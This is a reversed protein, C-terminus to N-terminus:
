AFAPALRAHLRRLPRPSWWNASGLLRMLSPVLLARVIFADILVAAAAGVGIEKLFVLDSTVFAGLAVALLIAAASVVAGTRQLGVAIAETDPLGRERAEKIRTLLFVGYDTSLGVAIAVLVLYNAQEIGAEGGADQFVLVVIGTAAAATLLSMLLTKFPLVVSGTMLWLVTVTLAVLLALALPLAHSIGSHQDHLNAAAGGVAVHVPAPAARVRDVAAQASTSSPLGTADVDLQWTDHGLYRPPSVGRVGDIRRLHGAYRRLTPAAGAPATAVVAMPTAEASPFDRAMVDAVDRASKGQPLIGADVGIWNLGLVPAALALLALTTTAAVLGPRRMVGRALRYWRGTREPAPRVKGLRAGLLVFLPPLVLLASAAAVLAVLAGGIGMSILFRQPFVSLCAMAAAVTVASFMITRGATQLTAALAAGPAAGRGLEERFRSVCLLSYDIALGLGLGIVLNLAFPSLSIVTDVARLLAFTGLVSLGGVAIPLFAAVGRFIALSLLALLPFAVLEAIALDSTAQKSVEAGTVGQGGLAVAHDGAFADTLRDIVAKEDANARLTAAVVAQRGDRSPVPRGVAAVGREGRLVRADHAVEPSSPRARVLAVVAPEAGHGTAREIQTRAHTAESGPDDFGRPADLRGPAPGGLVAAVLFAALAVLALRAPRAAALAALKALMIGRQRANLQRKYM